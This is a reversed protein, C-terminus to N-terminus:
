RSQHILTIYIYVHCLLYIYYFDFQIASNFIYVIKITEVKIIFDTANAHVLLSSLITFCLIIGKAGYLHCLCIGRICFFFFTYSRDSLHPATCIALM